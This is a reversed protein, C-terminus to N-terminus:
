LPLQATVRGRLHEGVAALLGDVLGDLALGGLAELLAAVSHASVRPHVRPLLTVGADQVEAVVGAAVTVARELRTHLAPSRPFTCTPMHTLRSGREREWM